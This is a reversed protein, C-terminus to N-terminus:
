RAIGPQTAQDLFTLIQEELDGLSICHALDGVAPAMSGIAVFAVGATLAADRDAPADGFHVTTGMRKAESLAATKSLPYGCVRDFPPFGARAVLDAINAHPASSVVWRRGPWASVFEIAGRMPRPEAMRDILLREYCGLLSDLESQPADLYQLVYEFKTIRPIGRTRHNYQSLAELDSLSPDLTDAVAQSWSALKIDETDLLVGDM